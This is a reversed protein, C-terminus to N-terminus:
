EADENNEEKINRKAIEFEHMQAHYGLIYIADLPTDKLDDPSLRSAIESIENKWRHVLADNNVKKFYITLHEYLHKYTSLPKKSFRFILKEAETKRKMNAKYLAYSEINEMYALLRGFLYSRDNSSENIAMGYVERGKRDNYDKRIIASAINLTKEREWYEMDPRSSVRRVIANVIDSPIKRSEVICPILRQTLAYLQKKDSESEKSLGYTYRIISLPSPTYYRLEGTEKSYVYSCCSEYWQELRKIFNASNIEEYYIVSLRGPTATEFGCIVVNDLESGPKLYGHLSKRLSTSMIEGTDVDVDPESFPDDEVDRMIDPMLDNNTSFVLYFTNTGLWIAQNDRLWNLANHSKEVALSSVAFAAKENAFRDGSYRIFAGEESSILKANGIIKPCLSATPEYEGSIYCIDKESSQTSSYYNIWAKAVSRDEWPCEEGHEDKIRIRVKANPDIQFDPEKSDNIIDTYITGMQHYKFISQVLPHAYPSNCWDELNQLYVSPASEGTSKAKKKMAACEPSINALSDVLPHPAIKTGTRNISAESYPIIIDAKANVFSGPIYEGDPTISIEYESVISKHYLPLFDDRDCCNDYLECLRQLLGM